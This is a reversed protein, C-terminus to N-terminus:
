DGPGVPKAMAAHCRGLDESTWRRTAVAVQAEALALAQGEPIRLRYGNLGLFMDAAFLATRKNGDQFPHNLIVKEAVVGALAFVDAAQGYRHQSVPSHVASELMAPQTPAARAIHRAHLRQVQAATLFRYTAAPM